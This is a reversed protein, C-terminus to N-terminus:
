TQPIYTDCPGIFWNRNSFGLDYEKLKKPSAVKFKFGSKRNLGNVATEIQSRLSPDYVAVVQTNFEEFGEAFIGALKRGGDLRQLLTTPAARIKARGSYLGGGGDILQFHERLIPDSDVLELGPNSSAIRSSLYKHFLVFRDFMHDNLNFTERSQATAKRM